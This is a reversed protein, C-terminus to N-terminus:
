EKVSLFVFREMGQTEVVLRVGKSLASKTLLNILESEKSIAKGNVSLIIDKPQIGAREAISGPTVSTVVLGKTKKTGLRSALDGTLTETTVGINNEQTETKEDDLSQSPLEEIKVSLEQKNGDRFVEVPVKTGPETAAVRNRLQNMDKVKEGGFSTVIDGQKFGAKQAPSDEQIQGILAGEKENYNFSQSLEETLNQIGVGLWGRVVKGKSILSEMVSKVMKSPIAFGVGMYGGSRTFIATNIGIVEGNLNCLPGGSNGPNIAADTQIFDEYQGVNGLSRGKASVIGATITNDLGFPNGAAIVWDGIKITDSDGLTATELAFPPDIKIVALDSKPDKGIIKAKVKKTDKNLTVELEDAEGVVHNNTLIYGRSDVIVGTGMGQQPMDQGQSFKDFLDEGFFDKFKDFFPDNLGQPGRGVKKARKYSSVSVLSPTIKDAVSNFAASLGQAQKIGTTAEQAETIHIKFLPALLCFTLTLLVNCGKAKFNITM